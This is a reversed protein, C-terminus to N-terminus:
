RMALEKILADVDSDAEGCISMAFPFLSYTGSFSGRYKNKEARSRGCPTKRYIHQMTLTSSASHNVITTDLLLAKNKRWHHNEFLTGLETTLDLQLPNLRINQGSASERFTQTDGVVFQVSPEITPSLAKDQAHAQTHIFINVLNCMVVCGPGTVRTRRYGQM